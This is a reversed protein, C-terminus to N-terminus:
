AHNVREVFRWLRQPYIIMLRKRGERRAIDEEILQKFVESVYQPTVSLTQAIEKDSLPLSLRADNPPINGGYQESLFQRLLRELHQRAPLDAIRTLHGVIALSNRCAMQTVRWCLQADNKILEIFAGVPIRETVCESLAVASAEYPKQAIATAVGLLQGSSRMNVIIERGDFETRRLKVSGRSIFYVAEAEDGQRFIEGRRKFTRRSAVRAFEPWEEKFIPLTLSATM